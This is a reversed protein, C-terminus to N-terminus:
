FIQIHGIPVLNLGLALADHIGEPTLGLGELRLLLTGDPLSLWKADRNGTRRRRVCRLHVELASPSADRTVANCHGDGSRAKSYADHIYRRADLQLRGLHSRPEQAFARWTKTRAKYDSIRLEYGGRAREKNCARFNDMEFDFINRWGSDCMAFSFQSALNSAFTRALTRTGGEVISTLVHLM